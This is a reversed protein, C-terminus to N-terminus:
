RATELKWNFQRGPQEKIVDCSVLSFTRGKPGESGLSGPVESYGRRCKGM